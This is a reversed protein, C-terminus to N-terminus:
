IKSVFYYYYTYEARIPGGIFRWVITSQKKGSTPSFDINGASSLVFWSSNGTNGVRM